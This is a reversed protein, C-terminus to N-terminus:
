AGVAEEKILPAYTVAREDQPRAGRVGYEHRVQVGVVQVERVGLRRVPERATGVPQQAGRLLERM